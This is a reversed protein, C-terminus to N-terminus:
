KRNVAKFSGGKVPIYSYLLPKCLDLNGLHKPTMTCKPNECFGEIVVRRQSDTLVEDCQSMAVLKNCKPCKASLTVECLMKKKLERVEEAISENLKKSEEADRILQETALIEKQIREPEGQKGKLWDLKSKLELETTM